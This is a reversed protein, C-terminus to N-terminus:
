NIPFVFAFIEESGKDGQNKKLQKLQQGTKQKLKNNHFVNHM